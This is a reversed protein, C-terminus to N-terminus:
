GLGFSTDYSTGSCGASACVYRFPPDALLVRAQSDPPATPDMELVLDAACHPCSPLGTM